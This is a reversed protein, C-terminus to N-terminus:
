VKANISDTKPVTKIAGFYTSNKIGIVINIVAINWKNVAPFDELFSLIENTAM